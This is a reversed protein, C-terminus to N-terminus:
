MYGVAYADLAKFYVLRDEKAISIAPFEESMLQYNMILRSM